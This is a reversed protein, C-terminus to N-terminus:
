TLKIRLQKDQQKLKKKKKVTLVNIVNQIFIYIHIFM